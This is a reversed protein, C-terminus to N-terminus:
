GYNSGGDSCTGSEEKVLSATFSKSLISIGKDREVFDLGRALRGEAPM